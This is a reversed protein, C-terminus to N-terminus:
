CAWPGDQENEWPWMGRTKIGMAAWALAMLSASVCAFWLSLDAYVGAFVALTAATLWCTVKRPQQRGFVSPIIAALFVINGITLIYDHM